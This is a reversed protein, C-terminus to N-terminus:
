LIYNNNQYSNRIHKVLKDRFNYIQKSLIGYIKNSTYNTHKIQNYYKCIIEWENEHNIYYKFNNYLKNFSSFLDNKKYVYDYLEKISHLSSSKQKVLNVLQSIFANQGHESLVYLLINVFREYKNMTKYKIDSVINQYGYDNIYKYLNNSKHLYRNYDEFTHNLEHSFIDSAVIGYEMINVAISVFNFLKENEDYKYADYNEINEQWIEYKATNEKNESSINVSIFIEKFFINPINVLEDKTFHLVYQEQHNDKNHSKMKDLIFSCLEDCGNYEGNKEFIFQETSLLNNEKILEKYIDTYLINNIYEELTKM